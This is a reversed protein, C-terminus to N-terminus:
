VFIIMDSIKPIVALNAGPVELKKPLTLVM